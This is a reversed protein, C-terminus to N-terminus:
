VTKQKRWCFSPLEADNVRVQDLHVSTASDEGLVNCGNLRGDAVRKGLIEERSARVAAKCSGCGSPYPQNHPCNACVLARAKAETESVYQQEREARAKRITNFWKLVRGKLSTKRLEAKVQEPNEDHCLSENRKCAQDHIEQEPNGPPLQNRKRYSRVRSVVETWSQGRHMSQDQEIFFYGDKPYLNVNIRKM